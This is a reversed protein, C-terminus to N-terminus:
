EPASCVQSVDIFWIQDEHYLLNFESLDGHVLQCKHYMDKMGQRTTDPRQPCPLAACPQASRVQVTQEYAAFITAQDPFAVHRLKPAPTGDRGVFSLVLVHGKLKVVSPCRVGGRKM